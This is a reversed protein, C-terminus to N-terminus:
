GEKGANALAADIISELSVLDASEASEDFSKMLPKSKVMGTKLGYRVTELARVLEDRTSELARTHTVIDHYLGSEGFEADGSISYHQFIKALTTSM